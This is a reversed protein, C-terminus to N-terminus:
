NRYLAKVRGWTTPETAVPCNVHLGQLDRIPLEAFFCDSDAAIAVLFGDPPATRLESCASSTGFLQYTMTLVLIPPPLCSAFGISIDTPSSGAKGFSTTEGLWVGTFGPGPKISFRLGTAGNFGSYVVYLNVIRPANDAISTESLAADSFIQLKHAAQASSALVLVFAVAICLHLKM